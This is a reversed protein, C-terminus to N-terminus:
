ASRLRPWRRSRGDLRRISPGVKGLRSSRKLHRHRKLRSARAGHRCCDSLIPSVALMDARGSMTFSAAGSGIARQGNGRWFIKSICLLVQSSRPVDGAGTEGIGGPAEGSKIVHVEIKPTQDIRLMRYNNFSSQQVRGKAITWRAMSRRPLAPAGTSGPKRSDRAVAMLGRAALATKGTLGQEDVGFPHM